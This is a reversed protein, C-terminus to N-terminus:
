RAEGRVRDTGRRPEGNGTDSPSKNPEGTPELRLLQTRLYGKARSLRSMVTGIPLELREALEKYSCDEFYYGVLVLKFEEPLEDIARQLEEGDFALEEPIDIALLDVDVDLNAASLPRPKRQGRLYTRRLVSCLWARAAAPDRLQDLKTLATLFVQQTLDEADAALGSLRYAYRYLVPGHEAVLTEIDLPQTNTPQKQPPLAPDAM